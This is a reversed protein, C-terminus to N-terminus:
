NPCPKPISYNNKANVLNFVNDQLGFIWNANVNYISCISKIHEATFHAIGQKIKTTSQPPMKIAMCFGATNKVQGGKKLIEILEFIKTDTENIKM